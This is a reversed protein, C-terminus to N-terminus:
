KVSGGEYFAKHGDRGVVLSGDGFHLRNCKECPYADSVSRCGVRLSVSRSISVDGGCNEEKCKMRKDKRKTESETTSSRRTQKEQCQSRPKSFAIPIAEASDDDSELVQRIGALKSSDIVDDAYVIQRIAELKDM